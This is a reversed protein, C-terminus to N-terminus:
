ARVEKTIEAHPIHFYTESMGYGTCTEVTSLEVQDESVKFYEALVKRIDKADLIIKTTMLM